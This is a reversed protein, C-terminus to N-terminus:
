GWRRYTQRRGIKRIKSVQSRESRVTSGPFAGSKRLAGVAVVGANMATAIANVNRNKRRNLKVAKRVFIPFAPANKSLGMTWREVAQIPIKPKM